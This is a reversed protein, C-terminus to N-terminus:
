EGLAELVDWVLNRLYNRRQLLAVMANRASDKAAADGRQEAEDWSSWLQRMQKDCDALQGQLGTRSERLQAKLDPDDGGMRLEELQMNLEFVEALLDAPVNQNVPRGEARAATHERASEDEISAGELLLLYKTRAVPDKLTRYADNLLSSRETAEQQKEASATAFLDPHLKRSLRYFQKELAAADLNLLRPLGFVMFYDQEGTAARVEPDAHLGSNAQEQTM